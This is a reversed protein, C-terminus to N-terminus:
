IRRGVFAVWDQDKLVDLVDFGSLVMKEAISTQYAEIIGSCIFHGGPKVASAVDDLLELIVEALINAVVVDYTRTVPQMLNGVTLGVTSPDIHNQVLNKQAVEVSLPDLDIGDLRSAKLKAAAVLLIGSGTGVDLVTDNPKLYKELLKICLSTTPHTGTGFAMGPDIEIVAEGPKPSYRRWTPKVVMRSTIKQPWFFAKWSEAWDQEDIRSYQITYDFDQTSALQAISLELHHRRDELNDDAPLYGTVAPRTPREEADPAWSEQPELHPDDVVVGKANLNYFVDAILEVTLAENSSTFTVKAEMWQMRKKLPFPFAACGWVTNFVTYFYGMVRPLREIEGITQTVNRRLLSIHTQGTLAL